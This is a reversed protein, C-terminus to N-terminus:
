RESGHTNIDEDEARTRELDLSADHNRGPERSLTEFNRPEVSRGSPARTNTDPQRPPPEWTKTPM